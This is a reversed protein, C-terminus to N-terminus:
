FKVKICENLNTGTSIFSKIGEELLPVSEKHHPLDIWVTVKHAIGSSKEAFRYTMM